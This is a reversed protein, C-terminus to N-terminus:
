NEYSPSREAPLGSIADILEGTVPDVVNIPGPQTEEPTTGEGESAGAEAGEPEAGERGEGGAQPDAEGEAVPTQVSAGLAAEAEAQETITM